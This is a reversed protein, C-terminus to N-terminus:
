HRHKGSSCEEYLKIWDQCQQDCRAKDEDLWLCPDPGKLEEPMMPDHWFQDYDATNMNFNFPVEPHELIFASPNM